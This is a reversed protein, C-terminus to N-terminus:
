KLVENNNMLLSTTELQGRFTVRQKSALSKEGGGTDAIDKSPAPCCLVPLFCTAIIAYFTISALWVCLWRRENTVVGCSQVEV